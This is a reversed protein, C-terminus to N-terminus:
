TLAEGPPVAILIHSHFPASMGIPFSAPAAVAVISLGDYIVLDVKNNKLINKYKRSKSLNIGSYLYEVIFGTTVSLISLVPSNYADHYTEESFDVATIHFVLVWSSLKDNIATLKLRAQPQAM